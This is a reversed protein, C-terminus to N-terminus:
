WNGGNELLVRQPGGHSIEWPYVVYADTIAGYYNPECNLLNRYPNFHLVCSYPMGGAAEVKKQVARTTRGGGWANNVVLVNQSELNEGEPFYIVNPWSFLKSKDEDVDSLFEVRATLVNELGMASALIGAPVLGSPSIAMMLDFETELQTLLHAALNEVEKWSVIEQRLQQM